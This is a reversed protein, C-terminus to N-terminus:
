HGQHTAPHSVAKDDSLQPQGEEHHGEHGPMMSKMMLLHSLPCLLILGITILGSVPVKFVSILTFAVIPILCCAVMILAHKKNM